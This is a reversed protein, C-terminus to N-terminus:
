ARRALANPAFIAKLMGNRAQEQEARRQQAEADEAAGGGSTSFGAPLQSM